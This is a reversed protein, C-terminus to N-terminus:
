LGLVCLCVCIIGDLSYVWGKSGHNLRKPRHLILKHALQTSDKKKIRRRKQIVQIEEKFRKSFLPQAQLYVFCFLLRNEEFLTLLLRSHKYKEVELNNLPKMERMEVHM